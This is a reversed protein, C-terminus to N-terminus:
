RISSSTGGARFSQQESPRRASGPLRVIAEIYLNNKEAAHRLDHATSTDLTGLSCQMGGAGIRRCHELFKRPQYLDFDPDSRLLADRRFKACYLVLGLGTRQPEATLGSSGAFLSAALTASIQRLASRRTLPQTAM